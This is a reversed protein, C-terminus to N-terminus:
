ELLLSLESREPQDLDTVINDGGCREGRTSKLYECAETVLSAREREKSSTALLKWVRGSGSLSFM